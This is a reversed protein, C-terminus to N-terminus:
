EHWSRTQGAEIVVGDGVMTVGHDEVLAGAGDPCGLIRRPHRRSYEVLKQLHAPNNHLHPFFEFDVLGLASGTVDRSPDEDAFLADVNITPTLLIAGASVGILLGGRRAYDRLPGIMGGSELRALFERTNGGSLHIADCALLESLGNWDADIPDHSHALRLGVRAYYGRRDEFWKGEPDGGSPVFGIRAQHPLLAAILADMDRNQPVIQDSYFALKVAYRGTLCDLWACSTKTLLRNRDFSGTAPDPPAPIM